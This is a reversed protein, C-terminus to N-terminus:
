LQRVLVVSVNARASELGSWSYRCSGIGASSLAGDPARQWPQADGPVTVATSAVTACQEKAPGCPQGGSSPLGLHAERSITLKKRPLSKGAGGYGSRPSSITHICM